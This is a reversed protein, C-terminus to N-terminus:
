YDRVLFPHQCVSCEITKSGNAPIEVQLHVTCTPCEVEKMQQRPVNSNLEATTKRKKEM